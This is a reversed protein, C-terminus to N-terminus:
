KPYYEEWADKGKKLKEVVTGVDYVGPDELKELEEWTLPMSVSANPTARTSYPMVMLQYPHNRYIDVLVRESRESKQLTLTSNPLRSVIAEAVKKAEEFVKSFPHKPEIPCCIHIGRKGSTKVHTRYGSSEIIPRCAIAFDRLEAFSYTAPPDLDFVMMNPNEFLPASVLTTHFELVDLNVLWLLDAECAPVVYRAPKEVGLEKSPLWPPAHDPINKQFFSAGELGHPYRKIAIPRGKVFPLWAAATELYYNVLDMKTIGASPFLVKDPHTIEVDRGAVRITQKEKPMGLVTHIGFISSLLVENLPVM